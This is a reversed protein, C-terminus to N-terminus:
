CDNMIELPNHNTILITIQSKLQLAIAFRLRDIPVRNAILM